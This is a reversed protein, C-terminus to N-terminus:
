VIPVSTGDPSPFSLGPRRSIDRHAKVRFTPSGDPDLIVADEHNVDRRIPTTRLM